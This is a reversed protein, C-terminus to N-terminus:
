QGITTTGRERKDKGKNVSYITDVLLFSQHLFWIPNCAVSGGDIRNGQCAQIRRFIVHVQWFVNACRGTDSRVIRSFQDRLPCICSLWFQPISDIVPAIPRLNYGFSIKFYSSVTIGEFIIYRNSTSVCSSIFWTSVTEKERLTDLRVYYMDSVNEWVKKVIRTGQLLTSYRGIVTLYHIIIVGFPTWCCNPRNDLSSLLTNM